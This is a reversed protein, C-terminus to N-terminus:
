WRRDSAAKECRLCTLSPKQSLRMPWSFLESAKWRQCTSCYHFLEPDVRLRPKPHERKYKQKSQRDRCEGCTPQRPEDPSRHGVRAFPFDTFIKWLACTDCQVFLPTQM